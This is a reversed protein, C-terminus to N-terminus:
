VLYHMWVLFINGFNKAGLLYTFELSIKKYGIGFFPYPPIFLPMYNLLNKRQTFGFTTGFSIKYNKNETLYFIKKIFVGWYLELKKYSDLCITCNLSVNKNKQFFFAGAGLGLPIENFEDIYPKEYTWRNHWM